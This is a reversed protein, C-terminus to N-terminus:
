VIPGFLAGEFVGEFLWLFDLISLITPKSLSAQHESNQGQFSCAGRQADKSGGCPLFGLPAQLGFLAKKIFGLKPM